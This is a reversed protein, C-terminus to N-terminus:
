WDFHMGGYVSAGLYNFGYLDPSREDNINEGRLYVRFKSYIQYELNANLRPAPNIRLSNNSNIWYSDRFSLGISLRLPPAIQWNNSIQGQHAPRYGMQLHKVSDQASMFGYSIETQWAPNWIHKASLEMGWVDARNSFNKSFMGADDQELVILHNYQQYYGNIAVEYKSNIQWHWGIEGGQNTEPKLSTRNAISGFIPHLLENVAPSRYGNGGKVWILMNDAFRRGAGVTFVAHDGFKADNDYRFSLNSLWNGYELETKLMPSVVTNLWAVQSTTQTTPTTRSLLSDGQQQQTDVGWVVRLFDSEKNLMIKHSNEWRALWLQNNLDIPIAKGFINGAHGQQSDQTYGLRLSSDWKSNFTYQGHTQAVWTNQLLLGNPDDKWGLRYKPFFGPGDVNERANVFYLSTDIAGHDLNKDWRLLGNNMHFNDREGNQPAAQSVGEFIDTRGGAVSFAGIENSHGVGLNNHVTGYSGAESHWFGHNSKIKRTQLNLSGGLTHSSETKESLGTRLQASEFFDLPLHSLAFYSTFANFLPVGDLTVLGLGGGAGRFSLGSPSSANSQTLVVSAQNRLVQNWDSNNSAELDIRDWYRTQNLSASIEDSNSAKVQVAPLILDEAALLPTNYVLSPLALTGKLFLSLKRLNLTTFGNLGTITTFNM